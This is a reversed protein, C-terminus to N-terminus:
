GPPTMKQGGEFVRPWSAVIETMNFIPLDFQYEIFEFTYVYM